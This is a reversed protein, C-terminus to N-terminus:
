LKSLPTVKSTGEQAAMRRAWRRQWHRNKKKKKKQFDQQSIDKLAKTMNRQIDEIDQFRRGKFASKTKPFLWFDDLSL